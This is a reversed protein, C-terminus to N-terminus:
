CGDKSKESLFSIESVHKSISDFDVNNVNGYLVGNLLGNCGFLSFMISKNQFNHTM